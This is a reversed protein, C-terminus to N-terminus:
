ANTVISLPPTITATNYGRDTGITIRLDQHTAAEGDNAASAGGIIKVLGDSPISSGDTGMTRRTGNYYGYLAGAASRVWAVHVWTNLTIDFNATFYQTGNIILRMRVNTANNGNGIDCYWDDNVGERQRVLSNWFPPKNFGETFYFYAESVWQQTGIAFRTASVQGWCGADQAFLSTTYGDSAFNNPTDSKFETASGTPAAVLNTGTGRVVASIDSYYQAMSIPAASFLSCPAALQVSASYADNRIVYPAAPALEYSNIGTWKNDYFAFLQDTGLFIQQSVEAM